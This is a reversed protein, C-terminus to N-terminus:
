QTVKCRSHADLFCFIFNHFLKFDEAVPHLFVLVNNLYSIRHRLNILFVFIFGVFYFPALTFDPQM